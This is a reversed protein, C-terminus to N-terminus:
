AELAIKLVEEETIDEGCVEGCLRGNKMAVIRDSMAILEPMDSSIMIVFKGQKSLAVMLSYIEEKAGIDIGRTPEDFIIVRPDTSLWKSLVVKQQNGGSLFRAHKLEDTTAIKFKEIFEHSIKKENNLNLRWTGKQNIASLHINWNISHDLILGSQQRDETILCIGKRVADTPDIPTIDEGNLLVRGSDRKDAGFILRAVETRGSGTMGAIGLIQGCSMKVSFDEVVGKKSMNEIELIDCGEEIEERCYFMDVDRGVMQKILEESSAEGKGFEAVKCGDRLVTIRDYIEFVEELHHSIFIIGLGDAALKKVLKLLDSIEKQTYSATPEDLILIDANGAVARAVQVTQRDAINLEEVTIEPDIKSHLSELIEAAKLNMMKYDIKHFKDTFQSNLFINEAASLSPVVVPEQYITQIGLGKAEGPTLSTKDVGKVTLSGSDPAYVGSLIKIFTSKGAGNEGVICHIEGRKLEFSVDNFATVGPFYKTCNEVSVLINQKEKM